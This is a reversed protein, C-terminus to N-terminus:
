SNYICLGNRKSIINETKAIDSSAFCFSHTAKLPLYQDWEVPVDHYFGDDGRVSVIDTQQKINYSYATIKTTDVKENSSVFETKFIAQTKTKPHVLFKHDVTNALAECEKLSYNQTYEPIPKLSHVPREQYVPISWIPAFDFYVAKFYETNKSIFNEKVVDFSWSIYDKTTLNVPRGQSHNTIIKNTRKRKFFNFDDGYASKSLILSVLNKQALPTFLTRYEVENTRNLADFLLEFESNSMSTFNANQSLAKEEKKKLDKEGRKLFKKMEKESKQELHSADRSFCLNPGGQACYNLIVQTKYFPKPKTVTAHLTQSNTRTRRKGDVDTYRETWYITKYGHYIQTGMTHILKNEFLFPNENYTGAVMDLTSHENEKTDSFDYNIKMDTEQEVSFEKSFSLLPITKEIILLADRNSFLKNLPLMQNQAETLLNDVTKEAEEINLKINKIKPTTKLIVVPILILTICMLVRFVKLNKLNKKLKAVEKNYNNYKEVTARNQEIDIGSTKVLDEFYEVTNEYHLNKFKTEYEELPNYILSDM